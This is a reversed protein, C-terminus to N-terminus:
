ESRAPRLVNVLASLEQQGHGNKVALDLVEHLFHPVIPLVGSDKCYEVVRDWGKGWVGLSCEPADFDNSYIQSAMRDAEKELPLLAGTYVRLDIGEAECMAAGQLYGVMGMLSQVILSIDLACAGGISEGVHTVCGFQQLLGYQEEFVDTPGSVFISAAQTGVQRPYALIAGDLYLAGFDHLMERFANAEQPLGTGLQIVTKGRLHKGIHDSLLIERAALYDKVCIVLVDSEKAGICVTDVRRAGLLVLPDAKSPTRNWVAVHEHDRLLAGALASGMFGLGVVCIRNMDTISSM